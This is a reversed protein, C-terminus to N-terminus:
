LLDADTAHRRLRGHREEIEQCDVCRVCGSVARRRAEPIPAGCDICAHASQGAPRHVQSLTRDLLYEIEIQALDAEDAM